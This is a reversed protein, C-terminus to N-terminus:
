WACEAQQMVVLKFNWGHCVQFGYAQESADAFVHLQVPVNPLVVMWQPIRYASLQPMVGWCEEVAYMLAPSLPKDWDGTYQWARQLLVKGILHTPAALGLPDFLSAM